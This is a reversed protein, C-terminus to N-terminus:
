SSSPPAAPRAPATSWTGVLAAVAVVVIGIPNATLAANLLWQGAAAAKTAASQAITAARHATSTAVAKVRKVSELELVLNYAQGVGSAFDTAMAAGQLAGAYKEAGVLEFGASLAGLAGTARGARDDLNEASGSIADLRSAAGDAKTAAGDVADGMAAASTAVRDFADVDATTAVKVGLEVTKGAM